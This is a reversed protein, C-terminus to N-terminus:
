KWLDVSEGRARLREARAQLYRQFSPEKRYAGSAVYDLASAFHFPRLYSEIRFVEKGGVFFVLTPTYAVRLERAWTSKATRREDLTLRYVDFRELPKRVEARRFGERHLEDCGACYPTEFLLALPKARRLDVPPQLLFDEDHLTASAAEKIATQMYADFRMGKGASGSAYDLAAEFRHPPLYGNLRVVIAGKEDLFLLTPTFQVRLARGLAKESMARGDVWTVEQDGWLNLAVAVFSRRTKDVIPRQSFNTQMLLKCYPCGDQGFYVMLRKERAKAERVEDRLDLLSASFWSPIDIAHPSAVQARAPLALLLVLLPVLVRM